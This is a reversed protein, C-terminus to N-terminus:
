PAVLSFRYFIPTKSTVPDTQGLINLFLLDDGVLWEEQQFLLIIPRKYRIFIYAYTEKTKDCNVRKVSLCVSPRVSLRVNKDHSIGGHM